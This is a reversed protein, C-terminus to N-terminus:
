RPRVMAVPVGASSFFSAPARVSSSAKTLMMKCCPSCVAHTNGKCKDFLFKQLNDAVGGAQDDGKHQRCQQQKNVGVADVEIKGVDPQADFVVVAARCGLFQGAGESLVTKNGGYAVVVSFLHLGVKGACFNLARKGNRRIERPPQRGAFVGGQLKNGVAGVDILHAM